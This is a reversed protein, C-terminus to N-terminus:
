HLFRVQRRERLLRQYNTANSRPAVAVLQEPHIWDDDETEALKLHANKVTQMDLVPPVTMKYREGNLTFFGMETMLAFEILDESGTEITFTEFEKDAFQSVFVTGM